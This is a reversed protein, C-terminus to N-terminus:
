SAQRKIGVAPDGKMFFLQFFYAAFVGVFADAMQGLAMRDQYGSTYYLYGGSAALATMIVGVIALIRVWRNSKSAFAFFLTVLSFGGVVFGAARHYSALSAMAHTFGLGYDPGGPWFLFFIIWHGSLAQVAALLLTGLTALWLGWRYVNAAKIM